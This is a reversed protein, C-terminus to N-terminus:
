ETKSEKLLKLEEKVEALQRQLAISEAVVRATPNLEFFRKMDEPEIIVELAENHTTM